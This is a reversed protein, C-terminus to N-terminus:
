ATPGAQNRDATRPRFWNARTANLNLENGDEKWRGDGM